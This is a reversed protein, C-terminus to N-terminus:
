SVELQKRREVFQIIIRDKEIPKRCKECFDAIPNEITQVGDKEFVVEVRSYIKGDFSECACFPAHNIKVKSEIRKIRAKLQM